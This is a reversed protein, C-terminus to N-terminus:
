RVVKAWRASGGFGGSFVSLKFFRLVTSLNGQADRCSGPGVEEFPGEAELLPKLVELFGDCMLFPM